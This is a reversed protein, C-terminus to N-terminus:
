IVCGFSWNELTNVYNWIDSMYTRLRVNSLKRFSKCTTNKRLCKQANHKFTGWMLQSSIDFIDFRDSLSNTKSLDNLGLSQRCQTLSSYPIRTIMLNTVKLDVFLEHTWIWGIDCCLYLSCDLIRRFKCKWNCLQLNQVFDHALNPVDRAVACTISSAGSMVYSHNAWIKCLSDHEFFVEQFIPVTRMSNLDFVTVWEFSLNPDIYWSLFTVWILSTRSFIKIITFEGFSGYTMVSAESYWQYLGSIATDNGAM